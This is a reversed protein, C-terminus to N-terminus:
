YQRIYSQLDLTSLQTKFSEPTPAEVATAPLINWTTLTWPIFSFKFTDKTTIPRHFKFKHSRRTRTPAPVLISNIPIAVLCHVAKHFLCLRAQLRRTELSPWNLHSLMDSVSSTNHYRRCVFRAARRQVKELNKINTTTHPDWVCMAYELHPRVLAHYALNKIREPGKGINRKLMGLIRNAKASINDIHTNWRLDRSLTVGLYKTADVAELTHGKLYYDSIIPKHARTIHMINCKAPHFEMLWKSEWAALNNIDHQLADCDSQSQIQRYLVCDDAFLRVNSHVCDPLDNIFLSFLVPGLVTGQPVGSTVPAPDSSEGSVVVSQTRDTLFARIWNNTGGRIGYHDLKHMLRSHSVKDFAKAFDMVVLDTQIGKEANSTLDHVLNVLQTECSHGKRFAHQSPHLINHNDLHRGISSVVIHEMLKSCICTLSVPRYNEPRYKEGKKFLPSVNANRWDHPVCGTYLSQQFITHLAPAIESAVEKLLRPPITDPGAAKNPKLGNLLHKVGNIDINITPMAPIKSPPLTPLDGAPDRTFVSQFQANLAQAKEGNEVILQGDVKLPSVGVSDKRLNKIYGWFKKNSKDTEDPTIIGEIYDWHAKRITSQVKARLAQYLKVDCQEGSTKQKQFLKNRQRILCRVDQTIWPYNQGTRSLKSPIYMKMAHNVIEKFSCWMTEVDNQDCGSPPFNENNLHTCLHDRLGDWDARKYLHIKRPKQPTQQPKIDIEVFAAAEHDSMGPITESRSVLSSNNTFFLELINGKRTPKDVMQELSTDGV